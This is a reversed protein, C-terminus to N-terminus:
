MINCIKINSIIIKIITHLECFSSKVLLDLQRIKNDTYKIILNKKNMKLIKNIKKCKYQTIYCEITM